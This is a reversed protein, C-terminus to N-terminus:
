NINNSLVHQVPKTEDTIPLIATDGRERIAKIVEPLAEVTTIKDNADHMLIMGINVNDLKGM